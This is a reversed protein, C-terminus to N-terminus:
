VDFSKTFVQWFYDTYYSLTDHVVGADRGGLELDCKSTFMLM